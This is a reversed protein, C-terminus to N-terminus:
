NIFNTVTQFSAGIAASLAGIAALLALSLLALLLAYEAAVSGRDDRQAMGNFRSTLLNSM